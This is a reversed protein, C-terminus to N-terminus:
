IIIIFLRCIGHTAHDLPRLRRLVFIGLLQVTGVSTFDARGGRESAPAM